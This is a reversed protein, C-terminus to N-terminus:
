AAFLRRANGSGRIRSLGDAQRCAQLSTVNGALHCFQHEFGQTLELWSELKVGLRSLLTGCQAPIHGPKDDLMARGSFEVLELYDNLHCPLTFAEDIDCSNFPKLKVPQKGNIAARIRLQISTHDSDEPTKSLKARIPNLDVYAMCSLLAQEDLLAQSKFRGEWFHGTCGDERNAKRAIPENLSRMFWSIDTLRQRYDQVLDEIQHVQGSSLTERSQEDCYQRTLPTGSFLRHWRELVEGIDWSQAQEVEVCLVLHTHNSMVAFAGVSIAFSQTLQLIRDEVWKRRHEYNKGSYPDDGCLFGRRVCRSVIHYYPTDELSIQQKRAKPM